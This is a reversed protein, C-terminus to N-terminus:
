CKDENIRRTRKGNGQVALQAGTNEAVEVTGRPDPLHEHLRNGADDVRRNTARDGILFLGPWPTTDDPLEVVPSTSCLATNRTALGGIPHPM